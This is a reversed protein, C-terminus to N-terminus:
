SVREAIESSVSLFRGQKPMTHYTHAQEADHTISCMYLPRRRPRGHTRPSLLVGFTPLDHTALQGNYEMELVVDRRAELRLTLIIRM